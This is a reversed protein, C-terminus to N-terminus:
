INILIKGTNNKFVPFNSENNENYKINVVGESLQITNINYESKIIDLISFSIIAKKAYILSDNNFGPSENILLNHFSISTYPFREWISLDINSTNINTNTHTKIQTILGQKIEEKYATNIIILSFILIATFILIFNLIYKFTKRM